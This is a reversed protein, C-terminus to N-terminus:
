CLITKNLTAPQICFPEVENKLWYCKSVIQRYVDRHTSLKSNNLTYAKALRSLVNNESDTQKHYLLLLTFVDIGLYKLSYHIFYLHSLRVRVRGAESGSGLVHQPKLVWIM